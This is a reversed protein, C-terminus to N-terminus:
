NMWSILGPTVAEANCVAMALNHGHFGVSVDSAGRLAEVHLPARGRAPLNGDYGGRLRDSAWM